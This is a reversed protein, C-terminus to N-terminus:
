SVILDHKSIDVYANLINTFEKRSVEKAGMRIMHSTTQQCDILVFNQEKLHEVLYSFALKSANEM